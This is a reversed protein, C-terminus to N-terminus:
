NRISKALTESSETVVPNVDLYGATLDVDILNLKASAISLYDKGQSQGLSALAQEYEESAESQRVTIQNIKFDLSTSLSSFVIYTVAFLCTFVTLLINLKNIIFKTM